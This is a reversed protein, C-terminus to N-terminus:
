KHFVLVWHMLLVIIVDSNIITTINYYKGATAHLTTYTGTPPEDSPHIIPFREEVRKPFFAGLVKNKQEETYQACREDVFTLDNVTKAAHYEELKKTDPNVESPNPPPESFGLRLLIEHKMAELRLRQELLPDNSRLCQLDSPSSTTTASSSATVDQSQSPQSLFFLLWWSAVLLQGLFSPASM